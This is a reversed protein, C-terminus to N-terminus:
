SIASQSPTREAAMVGVTRGGTWAVPMDAQTSKSGAIDESATSDTQAARKQMWGAMYAVASRVQEIHGEPETDTWGGM